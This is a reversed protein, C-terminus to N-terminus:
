HIQVAVVKGNAHTCIGCKSCNACDCKESYKITSIDKLAVYQNFKPFRNLLAAIREHQEKTTSIDSSLSGSVIGKEMAKKLIDIHQYDLDLFFKFSKTYFQFIIKSNMFHNFIEIWNNLYKQNYFDGSEHIRVIMISNSYRKSSLETEITYIMREVFNESLSAQMNSDRNTRANTYREDRKAYCFKECDKSRYPCTTKAMLNFQAYKYSVTEDSYDTLKANGTTQFTKIYRSDSRKSKMSIQKM